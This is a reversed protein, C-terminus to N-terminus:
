PDERRWIEPNRGAGRSEFAALATVAGYLRPAPLTGKRLRRADKHLSRTLRDRHADAIIQRWSPAANDKDKM